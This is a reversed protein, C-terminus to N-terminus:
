KILEKGALQNLEWTFIDWSMRFCNENKYYYKGMRKRFDKIFEKVDKGMYISGEGYVIRKEALTEKTM